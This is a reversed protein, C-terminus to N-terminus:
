AAEECGAPGTRPNESFDAYIISVAHHKRTAPNRGPRVRGSLTKFFWAQLPFKGGTIALHIETRFCGMPSPPAESGGRSQRSGSTTKPSGSRDHSSRVYRGSAVQHKSL